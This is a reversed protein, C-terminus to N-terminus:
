DDGAEPQASKATEMLAARAAFRRRGQAYLAEVVVGVEELDRADLRRITSESHGSLRAAFRVVAAEAFRAPGRAARMAEFARRGPPRLDIAAAERGAITLPVSLVVQM